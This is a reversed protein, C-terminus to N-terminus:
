KLEMTPKAAPVEEIFNETLFKHAADMSAHQNAVFKSIEQLEATIQESTQKHVDYITHRHETTPNDCCHLHVVLSGNTVREIKVASVSHGSDTYLKKAM